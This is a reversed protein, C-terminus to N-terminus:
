ISLEKLDEDIGIEIGAKQFYTVPRYPSKKMKKSSKSPRMNVNLNPHDLLSVNVISGFDTEKDLDNITAFNDIVLRNFVVPSVLNSAFDGDDPKKTDSESTQAQVFIVCALALFLSLGKM